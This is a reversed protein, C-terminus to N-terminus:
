FLVFGGEEITEHDSPVCRVAALTIFIAPLALESVEATAVDM